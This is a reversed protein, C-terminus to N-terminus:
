GARLADQSSSRSRSPQPLSGPVSHLRMSASDFLLPERSIFRGLAPDYYRARLFYYALLQHERRLALHDHRVRRLRVYRNRGRRVLATAQVLRGASNAEGRLALLDAAGGSRRTRRTAARREVPRIRPCPDRRLFTNDPITAEVHSSLQHQTYSFCWVL